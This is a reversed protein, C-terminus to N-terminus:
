DADDFIGKIPRIRIIGSRVDTEIVVPPIAPILYEKGDPSLIHWVDNAGTRSVDALTGYIKHTDDADTVTCGILEAIFYSGAPLKTDSRRMYLMKGRLASASEVNDVGDLMLLAINGHPRCSRVKVKVKGDCDFYLESFGKLFEPSDCWPNVRLEGRIGHTGVIQGAELFEKIL